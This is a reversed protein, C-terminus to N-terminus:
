QNLVGPSDAIWATQISNYTYHQSNCKSATASSTILMFGHVNAPPTVPFGGTGNECFTLTKEQGAAGAPLTFSTIAATLTITSERFAISFTPTASFAVSEESAVLTATGGSGAAAWTCVAPNTATCSLFTSGGTPQAGPLNIAYGTVATPANIQITNAPAASPATGAALGINGAKGTGDNVILPQTITDSGPNTVEDIHSNATITTASGFLPVFGLTGGSIGSGSGTGCPSGTGSVAGGTNVQLCQTSGTIASLTLGSLTQTATWTNAHGLALSAVVSGTTPSITLTGDSNVVSAVAGGGSVTCSGGLTCTTGNITMSPNTLGANGLTGGVAFTEIGGSPNSFAFTLGNFASPNVFNLLAQSTNNSGNTQLTPGSGGSGPTYCTGSGDALVSQGSPCGFLILSTISSNGIVTQNSQTNHAQYGFANTNSLQTTVGPGSDYGYWSNNSGTHNSNGYARPFDVYGDAGSYGGMATNHQGTSNAALAYSGFAFNFNGSNYFGATAGLGNSGMAFHGIGAVDSGQNFSGAVDGLFLVDHVTVPNPVGSCGTFTPCQKDAGDGLAIIDTSNSPITNATGDGQAIVDSVNNGITLANGDGIGVVEFVNNSGGPFVGSSNGQGIGVITGGTNIYTVNSLGIGVASSLKNGSSTGVNQSLNNNGVAVSENIFPSNNVNTFGYAQVVTQGQTVPTGVFNNNGCNTSDTDGVLPGCGGGGALVYASLNGASDTQFHVNVSGGPAAPTTDSFNLLCQNVLNTGNHQLLLDGGCAAGTGQIYFTQTPTFSILVNSAPLGNAGQIIGTLTVDPSSQAHGQRTGALSALALVLLLIRNRTM